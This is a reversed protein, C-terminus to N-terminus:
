ANSSECEFDQRTWARETQIEKNSGFLDAAAGGM